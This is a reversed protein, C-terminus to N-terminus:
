ALAQAHLLFASPEICWVGIVLCLPENLGSQRLPGLGPVIFTRFRWALRQGGPKVLVVPMPGM